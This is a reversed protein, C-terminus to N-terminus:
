AALFGSHACRRSVLVVGATESTGDPFGLVADSITVFGSPSRQWMEWPTMGPPRHCVGSLSAVGIDLAVRVPERPGLLRRGLSGPPPVFVLVDERDVEQPGERTLVRIVKSAMAAYADVHSGALHGVLWGKPTLLISPENSWDFWPDTPSRETADAVRVTPIGHWHSGAALTEGKMLLSLPGLSSGREMVTDYLIASMNGVTCEPGIRLYSSKMVRDEFLHTQIIAGRNLAAYDGVEVLDWESLLTSEIYAHEGIRCGFLRLFPAIFPTGLLPAMAPAAVSEYAGNVMENWWVYRSWLPVIVPEFRGMVLWKLGACLLIAVAGLVLAVLPAVLFAAVPSIATWTEFLVLSGAVLLIAGITGPILIRVADIIARQVYLDRTPRYTLREDFNGAKQRNPLPFAPSGLWETGSPVTETRSPPASLVGLLCREGISAGTPVIASNGIFTRRGIHNVRLEFRGRYTRRGGLICGDAFFSEEAVDLLEPAFSWITSMEARAGIRAGLLRLWAPLYLTTFVPLMVARAGRVLADSLWKRLYFTTYLAYVGPEARALLFRKVLAFWLCYVIVSSPVSAILVLGALAPSGYFFAALIVALFGLAPGGIVVFLLDAALVQVVAFFALRLPGGLDMYRGEPLLVEAPRPPSGRLAQGRPVVAGDPLMSQDDLRAYDEMHVDLGLAVHTGVFCRAGLDVRGLRLMGGEVRAGLLQTDPGVTTEDGISILDWASVEATDIACRRGVRAGMLRYYVPMAPTGALAGAGSLATLRGVLWWRFYYSGWLPHEGPQYRGILLWKAVISFALLVPWSALILLLGYGIGTVLTVSGRIVAIEILLLAFAPLTAIGYVLYLSVAQLIASRRRTSAPVSEFAARSTPEAAPADEGEGAGARRRELAAALRRVTPHQYVDRVALDTETADRVLTAAKAALLSHGGLDLFFDQDTSVQQVQFLRAWATAIAAELPSAPLVMTREASVLAAAPPPLRSRDVKGSTLLPLEDLVDLFGPVMYDPLKTRLHELLAETDLDRRPDELVVYAALTPVGNRDFTRAAAAAIQGDERLVSEIEALEVRYGRIKVQGDLRGHFELDGSENWRALDGSRYLRTAVGREVLESVVFRQATLEPQNLYGRALGPGGVYLEGMVGSPVPRGADDLIYVRYGPLPHGITVAAGAICDASTTNVTAETPGYVNLMRRGPRAWRDVLEPPCVEGSVVLQRLSPVDRTMTSLMTPVTSFYSVGAAALFGALENGFKPTTSSGVVLAAGNSFAMWIEEVSGDFSLSFGQFIRDASTTSCVDNFALVFAHANRHETMIGKPRGTTGSTYIVYCLGDPSLGTQDLTPRHSLQEDIEERWEDLVLAREPAAEIARAALSPETLLLVLQAEEAVFRIRDVPYVPDIPVYAAGAKLCALIAVIPRASREFYLGVLTGSGVGRDRLFHALRNAEADLQAYTLSETGHVLAVSSPHRDVQAEFLEHLFGGQASIAQPEQPQASATV